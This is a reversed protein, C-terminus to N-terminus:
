LTQRKIYVFHRIVPGTPTSDLYIYVIDYLIFLYNFRLLKFPRIM